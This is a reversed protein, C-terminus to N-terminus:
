AFLALREQAPLADIEALTMAPPDDTVFDFSPEDDAHAEEAADLVPAPPEEDAPAPDAPRDAAPEPDPAAEMEAAPTEPRDSAPTSDRAAAAAALTAVPVFVIDEHLTLSGPAAGIATATVSPVGLTSYRDGDLTDAEASPPRVDGGARVAVLAAIRDDLDCLTDIIRAMRRGALDHFSCATYIATAHRDLAGCTEGVITEGGTEGDVQRERLTWAAEQVAEAAALIDATAQEAAAVIADLGRAGPAVEARTRGILEAMELLGRRLTHGPAPTREATVSQELRAIADLVTRTEEGRARRGHEALFWRGRESAAITAEIAAYEATETVSATPLGTM